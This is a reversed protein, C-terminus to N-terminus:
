TETSKGLSIQALYEKNDDLFEILRTAKGIAVPLVGQAFPDLTGSHGIQKVKTVKRLVAVVDHSTFGKPKYINFFGFLEM